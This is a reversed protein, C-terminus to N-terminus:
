IKFKSVLMNLTEASQAMKASAENIEVAASTVMETSRAIEQSGATAEEVTASTSELARNIENMSSVVHKIGEMTDLTLKNIMEADDEYRKGSESTRGYDKIVVEDIYKLLDNSNTILNGIADQVQKTLDHIGHVTAASDEALQRVEEAVVAFGKGHEGARAAEIAANLALLNTQSAIGAINQALNNIEEIIQASEIAREVKQKIDAYLVETQQLANDAETKTYSARKMIDGVQAHGDEAEESVVTLSSAIEEGSANIEETAASIEEMGSSIEEISASTEEMSASINQASAALEESSAAVEQSYKSIDGVISRLERVMEDLAQSLKGLEDKKKLHEEPINVTLDGGAIVASLDAADHIPKAISRGLWIAAGIGILLFILAIMAISTKLSDLGALLEEKPATVAVSWGTSTIPSYGMLKTSGDTWLYEGVGNEGAVAKQIIALLPALSKDKKAEEMPNYAELVMEMQPHGIVTGEKNVIYGYGSSGFKIGSSITSLVSADASAVVLSVISGDAGKIPAAMMVIVSGDLKSVLPDSIAAKGQLASKFYDRDAIDLSSGTTTDLIGDLSAIGMLQYNLRKTEGQLYEMQRIRDMSRIADAQAIANMVNLDGQLEKEVLKAADEARSVINEDINAMMAKSAINYSFVGAGVCVMILLGAILVTIKTRISNM